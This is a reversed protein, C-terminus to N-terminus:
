GPRNHGTPSTRRPRSRSGGTCNCGGTAVVVREELRTLARFLMAVVHLVSMGAFALSAIYVALRIFQNAHPGLWVMAGWSAGLGVATAAMCRFCRGLKAKASAFGARLRRRTSQVHSVSALALVGFLAFLGLDVLIGM